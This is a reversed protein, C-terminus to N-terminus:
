ETAIAHTQLLARLSVEASQAIKIKDDDIEERHTPQSCHRGTINASHQDCAGAVVEKQSKSSRQPAALSPDFRSSCTVNGDTNAVSPTM